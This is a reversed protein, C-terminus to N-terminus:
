INSQHICQNIENGSYSHELKEFLKTAEETNHSRHFRAPYPDIGNDLINDLKTARNAILIDESDAM